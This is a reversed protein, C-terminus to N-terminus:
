GNLGPCVSASAQKKGSSRTAMLIIGALVLCAALLYLGLDMRHTMDNIKGVAFPAFFGSLNGISVIVGIGGAAAIGTLIETPLAVMLPITAFTAATAVTLAAMTLLTNGSFIGTLILGAAGVWATVAIHWHREGMRDSSHGLWVMAVTAAAYPIAGLLGATVLNTVGTNRVLQPLWFCIGYLAMILLFLVLSYVWLRADALVQRLSTHHSPSCDGAINKELLVKEEESLWEADRISDDLIWLVLGSMLVCPLGEILFLWQWGRLGGVGRLAQMIWGSLPSGVLCSVSMATMFIAMVHGRRRAPYWYTLYLIVGPFFGAEALGLSFRVIYFWTPSHVFMMSASLLGWVAMITALWERAGFKYLIINSPVDFLFYGIFFVGAGTGYITDSWGLEKMMEIKAFGINVRDLYDGVYFLFLFPILRRTVRAYVRAEDDAANAFSGPPNM